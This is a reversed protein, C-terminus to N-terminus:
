RQEVTNVTGHIVANSILHFTPDAALANTRKWLGNEHQLVLVRSTKRNGNHSLIAILYGKYEAMGWLDTTQKQRQLEFNKDGFQKLFRDVEAHESAVFNKKIWNPNNAKWASDDSRLTEIPSRWTAQNETIPGLLVPPDFLAGPLIAQRPTKSPKWEAQVDPTETYFKLFTQEGAITDLSCFLQMVFLLKLLTKM